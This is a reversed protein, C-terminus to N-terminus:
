KHYPEGRSIRICRYLQELLMVRALNHPYTAKGFSLLEDARSKVEPAVGYSGGIVFAFSSTGALKLADLRAALQESAYERGTRDCVVVHAGDPIAALVDAGERALARAVGGEAASRDPVERVVLNVYGSLRKAYE